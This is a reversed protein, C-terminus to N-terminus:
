LPVELKGLPREQLSAEHSQISYIVHYMEIEHLNLPQRRHKIAALPIHGGGMHMECAFRGQKIFIQLHPQPPLETM